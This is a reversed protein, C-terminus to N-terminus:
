IKTCKVNREGFHAFLHIHISWDVGLMNSILRALFVYPKRQTVYFINVRELYYFWPVSLPTASPKHFTSGRNLRQILCSGTIFTLEETLPADINVREEHDIRYAM